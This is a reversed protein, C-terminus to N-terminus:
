TYKRDYLLAANLTVLVSGVNHVIAGSVPTLIGLISLIIAVFNITMSITINLKILRITALALRKLYPIKSIDDGMLAIDAAEIAIDSGIGGMAVGVYATKLAPADNVGDGIMCIKRGALQLEEIKKVKEAPLLESQVDKIGVREAFYDATQKHDGTLLITDTRVNKLATVMGKADDRLTDSLALLGVCKGNESVLLTAKGQARLRDLAETEEEQFVVGNEELFAANGCILDRANVSASIGKGPIMNFGKADHLGLGRQKAYAVIAKALPHESYAEASATLSLLGDPAMGPDFSVVDSVTLSGHTLTGTKDFAVCDVRGMRELANGSKILVGYKTAQGIAAIISVPTALALACPCFVVLITVARTIDQTFIFTLVSIILAIPVLRSAWKDVIRQTPAKNNEAEQVLRILKQLSSDEYAKATQVDIAGFRNITGCFVSDGPAKDVPLSEGTIVSQDLSTNGALIVGDVPVNEGPLVRVMDGQRLSELPVMEEIGDIIRRGQKPALDILTKIGKRARAVTKEELIGGIAMIFAVEGAAFLQDISIAAIMAISILLPTTILREWFLNYIANYYIPIGCIVVTVWIPDIIPHVGSVMLIVSFALFAAGIITM